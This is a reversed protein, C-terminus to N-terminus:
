IGYFYTYLASRAFNLLLLVVIPAIDIGGLDPLFKRVPKMVPECLRDLAYNLKQVFPQYRNVVNFSILAGLIAWILICLSYLQIINALLDVFPNLM